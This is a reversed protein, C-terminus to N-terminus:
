PNVLQYFQSVGSATLRATKRDGQSVINVNSDQWAGSALAARTQLRFTVPSTWTLVIEAGERAIDLAPAPASVSPATKQVQQIEDLSLLRNFLQIEDMLGRFVRSGGDPGTGNRAGTDVTSFNGITLPGSQQVIGRPYDAAADLSAPQDARGFFFKAHESAASSDYTVAFFVWNGLATEPDATIMGDTSFPGGDGADPWQNVGLRLAGSATQVLDIGAGGPTALAFAIRNGGWGETLDRSNLWGCLTFASMVGMTNGFEHILDVARGGQEAGIGGFDICSENQPPAFSGKPTDTSFLPFGNQQAFIGMGGLNGTNVTNSGSGETFSMWVKHGNDPLVTLAAPQSTKPGAANSIVVRYQAQNDQSTATFTYAENTASPIAAGNKQWQFTFPGSGTFLVNFTVPQGTFAKTDHPSQTIVISEVGPRYAPAKQLARIDDLSLAKNFVNIEDILGRFVRSGGNPGTELRASAVPSFNGITLPGSQLVAGQFYDAIIDPQVEIGPKGFYYNVQSSALTSDYTVAFFVWNAAGTEPDETIMGDSSSPGGAGADPWQNVGLRLAGSALQVLDVGPGGPSALAFVIRNGGWGERLDRCNIWGSLTFASMAGLTNGMPNSFDVARAGQGEDISGFDMSSINDVPAWAGSPVNASFIPFSDRQALVGAGMLNGRNTTSTGGAESFSISVKHGNEPLVTVTANSSTMSGMINGVVVRFKAGNDNQTAAFAYTQSAAGAIAVGDKQWQFTYPPTGQVQVTLSVTQGDFVTAGLPQQTIAVPERPPEGNIQARVVDELPLASTFFKFEDVLGRFVRSGGNPGADTRAGVVTGFNGITLPGSLEIAGANDLGGLYTHESDLQAMLNPKGFYFKLQAAPLSADYTVAFFVWNAPAAGADATIKGPSSSPGGGNGGDPWQNIGIRMAGNALQVLDFGPGNPESLAFAIRNGGWGESLNRANLWGCVTFATFAGLTGDGSAVLDLARGGEGEGIVGFDVSGTNAAPAYPGQPVLTNWAPFDNEIVFAAEGALSGANNVATGTKEEFRLDVAAQPQAVSSPATLMGMLSAALIILVWSCRPYTDSNASNVKAKMLIDRPQNAKTGVARAPM